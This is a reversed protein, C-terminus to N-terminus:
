GSTPRRERLVARALRAAQAPLARGRHDLVLRALEEAPDQEGTELWHVSVDLKAALKRLARVSPTRANAELRSIYAYTVGECALERQSLGLKLRRARIRDGVTMHPRFTDVTV